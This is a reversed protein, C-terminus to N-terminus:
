FLKIKDMIPKLYSQIGTKHIQVSKQFVAAKVRVTGLLDINNQGNVMGMIAFVEGQNALSIHAGITYANNSHGPLSIPNTQTIHAIVKDNALIDLDASLVQVQYGNPNEIPLTAEVDAGSLNISKVAVNSVLGYKLDKPKSCSCLIFLIAIAIAGKIFKMDMYFALSCWIMTFLFYIVAIM